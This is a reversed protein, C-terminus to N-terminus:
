INCPVWFVDQRRALVLLSIKGSCQIGTRAPQGPHLRIVLVALQENELEPLQNASIIRLGFADMQDEVVITDVAAKLGLSCQCTQIAPDNQVEQWWVAGIVVADFSDPAVQVGIDSAIMPTAGHVFEHFFHIVPQLLSISRQM